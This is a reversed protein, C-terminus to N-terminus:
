KQTHSSILVPVGQFQNIIIVSDLTLEDFVSHVKKSLENLILLEIWIMSRCSDQLDNSTFQGSKFQLTFTSKCFQIVFTFSAFGM